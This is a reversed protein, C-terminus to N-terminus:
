TANVPHTGFLIFLLLIAPPTWWALRSNLLPRQHALAMMGLVCALAAIGTGTTAFTRHFYLGPADLMNGILTEMIWAATRAANNFLGALPEIRLADALLALGDATIVLGAMPVLLVNLLLSGPTGIKFYSVILPMSALMAAISVATMTFANRTVAEMCAHRWGRLNDPLGPYPDFRKNGYEALPLGYLLIAALVAYSLQFGPSWLQGPWLILVGTASAVLAAFPEPKRQVARAAVYLVIMSFARVASPAAGTLLVYLLLTALMLATAASRPLRLISFAGFLVAAVIGVHLGSVAFLHMTGSREFALRQEQTLASRNGLLMATAIGAEDTAHASNHRLADACWARAANMRQEWASGNGTIQLISGRRLEYLIGAAAMSRQFDNHAADMTIHRLLGKASMTYGPQLPPEGPSTRLDFVVSRGRLDDLHTPTGTIRAVGMARPKEAPTNFLRETKLELVAERPPLAAWAPQPADWRIQFWAMALLGTAVLVCGSWPAPRKEALLLAAGALALATLLLIGVPLAPLTRAICYGPIVPLLVWLLPARCTPTIISPEAHHPM